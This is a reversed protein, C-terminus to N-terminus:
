RASGAGLRADTRSAHASRVDIEDERGASRPTLLVVNAMLVVVGLAINRWGWAAGAGALLVTNFGALCLGLGVAGRPARFPRERFPATRRMMWTAVLALILCAFYGVNASALLAIPVEAKNKNILFSVTLVTANFVLDFRLANGPAGHRNLRGLVPWAEGNKAMQWLTRSSGIAITNLTLFFAGVLAVPVLVSTAWGSAGPLSEFLPVPGGAVFGPEVAALALLPVLTYVAVMLAAVMLLARVADRSGRRYEGSYTLAIEAGYASWGAIFFAGALAVLTHPSSWGGPPRFPVLRALTAHGTLLPVVLLFLSIVATCALLATQLWAGSTIGRHNVMVSLCLVAVAVLWAAWSSSAPLYRQWLYDGLLIANIALGLTWGLWYSWQVIVGLLRSYPRFAHATVVAIGGAQGPFLGVLEAFPLAMALGILAAAAWVVVSPPGALAAVPGLSLLILVLVGSAAALGLQWSVRRREPNILSL